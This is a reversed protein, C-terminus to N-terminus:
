FSAICLFSLIKRLSGSPHLTKQRTLVPVTVFLEIAGVAVAGWAAESLVGPYQFLFTQSEIVM